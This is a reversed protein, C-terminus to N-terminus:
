KLLELLENFSKDIQAKVKITKNLQDIFEMESSHLAMRKTNKLL